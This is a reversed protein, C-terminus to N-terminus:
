LYHLCARRSPFARDVARGALVNSAMGTALGELLGTYVVWVWTGPMEGLRVFRVAILSFRWVMATRSRATAAQYRDPICGSAQSIRVVAELLATRWTREFLRSAALM